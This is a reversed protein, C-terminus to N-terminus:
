RASGEEAWSLQMSCAPAEVSSRLELIVGSPPIPVLSLPVSRVITPVSVLGLKCLHSSCGTCHLRRSVPTRQEDEEAELEEGEDVWGDENTEVSKEFRKNRRELRRKANTLQSVNVMLKEIEVRKEENFERRRKVRSTENNEHGPWLIEFFIPLTKGNGTKPTKPIIPLSIPLSILLPVM